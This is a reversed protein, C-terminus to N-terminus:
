KRRPRLLGVALLSVCGWGAPEPVVVTLAGTVEANLTPDIVTQRLSSEFPLTLPGRSSVVTILETPVVVSGSVVLDPMNTNQGWNLELREQSGSRAPFFTGSVSTVGSETVGTMRVGNVEVGVEVRMPVSLNLRYFMVGSGLDVPVMTGAAPGSQYAGMTLLAALENPQGLTDTPLNDRHLPMRVRALWSPLPPNPIEVMLDAGIMTAIPYFMWESRTGEAPRLVLDRVAITRAAEDIGVKAACTGLSPGSFLQPATYYMSSMDAQSPSVMAGLIFGERQWTALGGVKFQSGAGSVFDYEVAGAFASAASALVCAVMLGRARM